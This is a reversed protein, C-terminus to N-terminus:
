LRKFLNYIDRVYKSENKNYSLTEVREVVLLANFVVIVGSETLDALPTVWCFTLAVPPESTASVSSCSKFPEIASDVFAEIPCRHLKVTNTICKKYM